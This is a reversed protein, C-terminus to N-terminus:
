RAWAILSLEAESLTVEEYDIELFFATNTDSYIHAWLSQAEVKEGVSVWGSSHSFCITEPTTLFIYQDVINGAIAFFWKNELTNRHFLGVISLIPPDVAGRSQYTSLPTVKFQNILVGNKSSPLSIRPTPDTGDYIQRFLM